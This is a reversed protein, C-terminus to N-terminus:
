KTFRGKSILSSKCLFYINKGACKTRVKPSRAADSEGGANSVTLDYQVEQYPSFGCIQRSTPLSSDWSTTIPAGGGM